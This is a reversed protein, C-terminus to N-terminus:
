KLKHPRTQILVENDSGILAVTDELYATSFRKEIRGCLLADNIKDVFAQQKALEDSHRRAQELIDKFHAVDKEYAERDLEEKAETMKQGVFELESM